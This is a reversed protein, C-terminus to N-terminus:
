RVFTYEGGTDAALGRLLPSEVGVAIGHVVVGRHANWRRVEERIRGPDTVRGASPVGDTLLYITDIERDEFALELATHIATGGGPRQRVVFELAEERSKRNMRVAEDSWADAGTSFFILNFRGEEPYRELAGVLQEKAADIRRQGGSLQEMSGSVDMVFVVRESVVQLGFFSSSTGGEDRRAARSREAALAEEYPPLTFGDGEAQWWRSWRAPSTGHDLGTLLRLVQLLDSRHRGRAAPLRELLLPLVEKRHLSGVQRLAERRVLHDPDDLLVELLDLARAGGDSGLVVAAGQRLGPDRDGALAELRALREGRDQELRLSQIV